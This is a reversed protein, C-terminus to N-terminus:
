NHPQLPPPLWFNSKLLSSVRLSLSLGLCQRVADEVLGWPPVPYMSHALFCALPACATRTM